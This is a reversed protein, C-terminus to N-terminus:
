YLINWWPEGTPPAISLSTNMSHERHYYNDYCWPTVIIDSRGDFAATDGHEGTKTLWEEIKLIMRLIRGMTKYGVEEQEGM